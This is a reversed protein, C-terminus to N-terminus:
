CGQDQVGTSHSGFNMKGRFRFMAGGYVEENCKTFIKGMDTAIDQCFVAMENNQWAPARCWANGLRRLYTLGEICDGWTRVWGGLNCEYSQRAELGNSPSESRTGLTIKTNEEKWQAKTVGKAAQPDYSPNLKIIQEYIEQATGELKVEPGGVVLPGAFQMPVLPSTPGEEASRVSYGENAPVAIVLLKM